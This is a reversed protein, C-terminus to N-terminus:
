KREIEMNTEHVEPNNFMPFQVNEKIVITNPYEGKIEEQLRLAESKTRFDGVTVRFFPSAYSRYVFVRPHAEKFNKEVAESEFRATQKNDNFIRVRWVQVLRSSNTQIHSEMARAIDQSQHITVESPMISFIDVGVLSSDVRIEPEEVSDRVQGSALPNSVEQATMSFVALVSLFILVVIKKM